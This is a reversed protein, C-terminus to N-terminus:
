TSRRGRSACPRRTPSARSSGRREHGDPRSSTARRWGAPRTPRRPRPPPHPPSSAPRGPRRGARPRAARPPRAIPAPIRASVRGSPPTPSPHRPAAAPTAPGRRGRPTRRRRRQGLVRPRPGGDDLGDSRRPVAVLDRPQAQQRVAALHRDRRGQRRERRDGRPIDDLDLAPETRRRVVIRIARVQPSRARRAGEVRLRERQYARRRHAELREAVRAAVGQLPRKGLGLGPEGGPDEDAEAFADVAVSAASKAVAPTLWTTAIEPQFMAITAPRTAATRRPRDRRDSARPIRRRDDGVDDGGARRRRDDPRGHHGADHEERALAAPGPPGGAASPSAAAAGAARRGPAHDAVGPEAERDHRRGPQEGPRVRQRRCRRPMAPPRIGPQSASLRPIESAACAAVSGSTRAVNPRSDSTEGTTLRATTGSTGAAISPPTQRHEAPAAAHEARRRDDGREGAQRAPDHEVDDDRMTRNARRADRERRDRQRRATAGAAAAAAPAAIRPPGAATRQSRRRRGARARRRAVGARGAPASASPRREDASALADRSAAAASATAM